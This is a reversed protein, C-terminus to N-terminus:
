DHVTEEGVSVEGDPLADTLRVAIKRLGEAMERLGEPRMLSTPTDNLLYAKGSRAASELATSYILLNGIITTIEKISIGM